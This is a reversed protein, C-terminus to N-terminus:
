GSAKQPQFATAETPAKMEQAEEVLRVVRAITNDEAAATVRVKLVADTNITGALGTGGQADLAAGSIVSVAVPVDQLRQARKQATVIIEGPVEDAPAPSQQPGAPEGAPTPEASPPDTQALAPSAVAVAFLSVAALSRGFRM